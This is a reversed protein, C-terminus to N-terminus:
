KATAWEWLHPGFVILGVGAAAIAALLVGAAAVDKAARAQEHYHPSLQDVVIEIATNLLEASWMLGISFVVLGWEWRALSFFLGAAVVGVAAALHLRFNRQTRAAHAVGCFAAKFSQALSIGTPRPRNSQPEPEDM